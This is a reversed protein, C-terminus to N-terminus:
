SYMGMHFSSTLQSSLRVRWTSNAEMSVLLKADARPCGVTPRKGCEECVLVCVCGTMGGAGSSGISSQTAPGGCVRARQTRLGRQVVGTVGCVSRRKYHGRIISHMGRAGKGAGVWAGGGGWVCVCM